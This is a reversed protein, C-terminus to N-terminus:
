VVVGEAIISIITEKFNAIQEARDWSLSWFDYGIDDIIFQMNMEYGKNTKPIFFFDLDSKQYASDTIYSGYCVVIAIDNKYKSKIKNILAKIIKQKDNPLNSIESNM